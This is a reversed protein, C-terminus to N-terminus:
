KFHLDAGSVDTISVLVGEPFTGRLVFFAM